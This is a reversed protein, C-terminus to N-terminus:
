AHRRSEGRAVLREHISHAQAEPTWRSEVEQRAHLSTGAPDVRVREVTQEIKAALDARSDKTYRAGTLGDIVAEAEPMQGYDDDDTVVPVGHKLSQIVTLGAAAPVVTVDVVSYFSTLDAESYIAGTFVIEVDLAEALSELRRQEPGEGALIVRVPRGQDRLLAAAEVLLDLRKVATLRIVAGVTPRSSSSLDLRGAEAQGVVQQSSDQSNYIVHMRAAPYGMRAGLDRGINGYVLLENALKYFSVRLRRLLPPDPRHWGITWFFVDRRRLRAIVAAAWTSLSWMDGHFIVADYDQRAILPLLGRQWTFRSRTMTRVREHNDVLTVPTAAIGQRGEIDSVFSVDLEQKGELAKFVGFRYHFLFPYVVLVRIPTGGTM